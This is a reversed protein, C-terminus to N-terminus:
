ANGWDNAWTKSYGGALKQVYLIKMNRISRMAEREMIPEIFPRPRVYHNGIKPILAHLRDYKRQMGKLTKLRGFHRGTPNLLQKAISKQQKRTIRKTYGQALMGASAAFQRSIPQFRMDKGSMVNLDQRSIMGAYATFHDADVHYRVFRSIWEGYGRGKRLAKTIPTFKWRGGGQSKAYDRIKLNLRYSESRLASRMAYAHKKPFGASLTQLEKIDVNVDIM